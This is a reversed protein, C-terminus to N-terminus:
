AILEIRKVLMQAVHGPDDEGGLGCQMQFQAAEIEPCPVMDDFRAVRGLKRRADPRSQVALTQQVFQRAGL